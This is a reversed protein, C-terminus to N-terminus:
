EDLVASYLNDKAIVELCQQMLESPLVGRRHAAMRFDIRATRDVLVIMSDPDLLEERLDSLSMQHEKAMQRLRNDMDTM